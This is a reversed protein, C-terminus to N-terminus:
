LLECRSLVRAADARKHAATASRYDARGDTWRNSPGQNTGAHPSGAAIHDAPSQLFVFFRLLLCSGLNGRLLAFDFMLPTFDFLQTLFIVGCLQNGYEFFSVEQTLPNSIRLRCNM